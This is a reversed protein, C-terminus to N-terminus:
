VALDAEGVLDYLMSSSQRQVNETPPAIHALATEPAIGKIEHPGVTVYGHHISIAVGRRERGIEVRV